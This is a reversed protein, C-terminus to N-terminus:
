YSTVVLKQSYISQALGVSQLCVSIFLGGLVQGHVSDADRKRKVWVGAATSRFSRQSLKLSLSAEDIATKVLNGGLGALIGLVIRDNIQNM